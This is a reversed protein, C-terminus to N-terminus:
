LICHHKPQRQRRPEYVRKQNMFLTEITIRCTTQWEWLALFCTEVQNLRYHFQGEKMPQYIILHSNSNREFSFQLLLKPNDVRDLEQLLTHQHRLNSDQYKSYKSNKVRKIQSYSHSICRNQTPENSLFFFRDEFM